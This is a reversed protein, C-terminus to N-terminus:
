AAVAPLTNISIGFGRRRLEEVLEPWPFASLPIHPLPRLPAIKEDLVEIARARGPRRIIYGQEELSTLLRHVGSKSALGLSTQIEKFSPCVGTAAIQAQLFRYLQHQRFTM